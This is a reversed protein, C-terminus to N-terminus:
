GHLYALYLKVSSRSLLDTPESQCVDKKLKLLNENGCVNMHEVFLLRIARADNSLHDVALKAFVGIPDLGLAPIDVPHLSETVILRNNRSDTHFNLNRATAVKESSINDVNSVVQLVAM